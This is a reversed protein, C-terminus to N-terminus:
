VVLNVRIVEIQHDVTLDIVKVTLLLIFGKTANRAFRKMFGTTVHVTASM